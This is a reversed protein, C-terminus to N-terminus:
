FGNIEKLLSVTCIHTDLIYNLLTFHLSQSCTKAKVNRSIDGQMDQM